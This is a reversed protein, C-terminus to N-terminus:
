LYVTWSNWEDDFAAPLVLDWVAERLCGALLQDSSDRLDPSVSVIEASTTELTVSAEGPRGGCRRYDTSIAHQLFADRDIAPARGSVSTAASRRRAGGFAVGTGVGHELGETSPRVGPEVALYSTVPSVAGGRRALTMMEPESLEDLLPSGFVLASWLGERTKDPTLTKTVAETWLEGEVTVFPSTRETVLLAEVGQGEDLQDPEAELKAALGLEPTLLRFHHLRVPRAWEEFVRVLDGHDSDARAGARWVLGHHPKLARGWSHEDDRSLDPANSELLGIHTVAGSKLTAARLREPTLTSRTLGDTLLVIRRAAGRPTLSLLQDAEALARDVDSGNRRQVSLGALARRADAVPVFGGFSRTLKRDFLLLEVKADSFHSLYADLAVKASEVFRSDTSLSTDLVLTIYAGRPVESLRPALRASYRTLVRGPSFESQVLEGTLAPARAPMMAFDLETDREPRILRPALAGNVLLKSGPEGSRARITALLADTGMAPLSLHHAGDRYSTPLTLTYEITKDSRPACPFVELALTGQSRWSLLAPDKPYYAGMGTLERYKAAAAEAEMLDGSFWHPHGDLTGLTRLGTAVAESPVDIWFTAEDHRPGGNHVTRRVVLKAYGAHLTLDVAHSKEVLLESREGQVEDARAVESHGSALLAM